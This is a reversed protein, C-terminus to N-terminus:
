ATAARTSMGSSGARPCPWFSETWGMHGPMTSVPLARNNGKGEEVVKAGRHRCANIFLRVEGSKLRTLLMPVGLRTMAWYSGPEPLESSLALMMPTTRLLKVEREWRERDTYDTVPVKLIDPALTPEKRAILEMLEDYYSRLEAHEFGIM